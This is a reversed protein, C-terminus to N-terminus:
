LDVCESILATNLYAVKGRNTGVSRVRMVPYITSILGATAVGMVAEGNGGGVTATTVAGCTAGEVMRHTELGNLARM